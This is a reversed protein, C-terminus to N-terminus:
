LRGQNNRERERWRKGRPDDDEVRPPLSVFTAACLIRVMDSSGWRDFLFHINYRFPARTAGRKKKREKM